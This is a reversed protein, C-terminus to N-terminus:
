GLVLNQGARGEYAFHFFHLEVSGVHIPPLRCIHECRHTTVDSGAGPHLCITCLEVLRDAVESGRQVADILQREIGGLLLTEVCDSIVKFRKQFEIGGDRSQCGAAVRRFDTLRRVKGDGLGGSGVRGDTVGSFLECHSGLGLGLFRYRLGVCIGAVAQAPDCQQSNHRHHRGNRQPNQDGPRDGRRQVVNHRHHALHAFAVERGPNGVGGPVFHAPDPPFEVM